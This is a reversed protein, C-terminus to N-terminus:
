YYPHTVDVHFLLRGLSFFILELLVAAQGKCGYALHAVFILRLTRYHMLLVPHFFHEQILNLSNSKM